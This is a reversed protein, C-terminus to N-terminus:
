RLPNYKWGGVYNGAREMQEKNDFNMVGDWFAGSLLLRGIFLPKRAAIREEVTDKIVRDDALVKFLTKLPERCETKGSATKNFLASLRPGVDVPADALRWIDKRRRLKVIRSLGLKEDADLLSEIAEYRDRVHRRAHEDFRPDSIKEPLFGFRAWSYGGAELGATIEFRRIGCARFFEIQNRMAIRGIGKGQRSCKLYGPLLVAKKFDVSRSDSFIKEKTFLSFEAKGDEGFEISFRVNGPLDRGLIAGAQKETMPIYRKWLKKDERKERALQKRDQGPM